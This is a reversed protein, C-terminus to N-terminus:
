FVLKVTASDTARVGTCTVVCIFFIMLQCYRRLAAAGYVM